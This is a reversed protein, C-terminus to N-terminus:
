RSRELVVFSMGVTDESGGPVAVREVERWEEGVSPFFTDGDPELDVETKYFRHAIPLAERYIEAGGAVLIETSSLRRALAEGLSFAADLSWAIHVEEAAFNENRTVVIIERGPLPHGISEYTRRGMIVPKGMTLAKFRKLDTPLRWPMQGALGIVGNRAVAAIVAIQPGSRM